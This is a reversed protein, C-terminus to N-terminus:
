SKEASGRYIKGDEGFRESWYETPASGTFRGAPRNMRLDRQAPDFPQGGAQGAPETIPERTTRGFDTAFRVRAQFRGLLRSRTRLLKGYSSVFDSKEDSYGPHYKGFTQLLM